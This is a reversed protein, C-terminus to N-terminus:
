GRAVRVEAERIEYTPSPLALVSIEVARDDDGLRVTHTFADPHTNDTWGEMVREYRDRGQLLAPAIVGEM